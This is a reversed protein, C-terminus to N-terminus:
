AAEFAKRAGELDGVIDRANGLAIQIDCERPFESAAREALTVAHRLDGTECLGRIWMCYMRIRREPPLEPEWWSRLLRVASDAAGQDLLTNITDLPPLTSM